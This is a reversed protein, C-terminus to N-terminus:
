VATGFLFYMGFAFANYYPFWDWVVGDIKPFPLAIFWSHFGLLLASFFLFAGVRFFGKLKSLAAMFLAILVYGFVEFSAFWLPGNGEVPFFTM